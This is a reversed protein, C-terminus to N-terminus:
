ASAFFERLSKEILGWTMIMPKKQIAVKLTQGEIGYTGVIGMGSFKGASSDGDLKVGNKSAAKKAAEIVVEASHTLTIEFEKSM